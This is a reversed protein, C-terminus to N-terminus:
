TGKQIKKIIKNEINKANELFEIDSMIKRDGYKYNFLYKVMGILKNIEFEVKYISDDLINFVYYNANVKNTKNTKYYLYAYLALQIFHENEIKSVCKFEWINIDGNLRDVCDLHGILNLGLLEDFNSHSFEKEYVSDSSVRIELREICANLDTQEMWDYEKIQTLKYNYGSKLACWKNSIKLLESASLDKKVRKKSITMKNTKLFEFYAPIAVGNIESVNEYLDGQKTKTPIDIKYGKEQIQTINLYRIAADVVESPIYKTISTVSVETPRSNGKKSDGVEKNYGQIDCVRSLMSKDIFQLYGNGKHHLVSLYDKARTTAVYIENPCLLPDVNKKYFEFYSDDFGFVIVVKRELGKVQHFTSFAIKNKLIDEDLREDDNNPVYVPIKKKESLYNALKRVPSRDSKVSPALIFIDEHQYGKRIYYQIEDFVKGGYKSCFTNCILYRVKQGPKVSNLNQYGLLCHNTFAAMPKTIRFSTSLKVRKWPTNDFKFIQDAFVIFREDAKNFAYISQNKDGLICFKSVNDHTEGNNKYIKCVLSYYLPTIDQAEDLIIYDYNFNKLKKLDKNVIKTIGSDTFCTRLYYKVCFSHYSHVEINELGMKDVRERTEFKLKKNYTLLLIKSKSYHQAIHLVTTTKGSGAVSDVLVNNEGLLSVISQQESSLSFSM